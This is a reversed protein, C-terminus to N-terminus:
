TGDVELCIVHHQRRGLWHNFLNSKEHLCIVPTSKRYLYIEIRSAEFLAPRRYRTTNSESAPQIDEGDMMRTASLWEGPTQRMMNSSKEKEDGEDRGVRRVMSGSSRSMTSQSLVGMEGNDDRQGDGCACRNRM